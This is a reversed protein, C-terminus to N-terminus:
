FKTTRGVSTGRFHLFVAKSRNRKLGRQGGDGATFLLRRQRARTDRAERDAGAMGAYERKACDRGGTERVSRSKRPTHVTPQGLPPVFSRRSAANHCVQSTNHRPPRGSNGDARRKVPIKTFRVGSGAALLWDDAFM